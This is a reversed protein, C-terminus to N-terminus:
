LHKFIKKYFFGNIKVLFVWIKSFYREIMLINKKTFVIKPYLHFIQYIANIKAWFMNGEPFDVYKNLIAARPNIKRLFHNLYILDMDNIKDHCQVKSKYYIEPFIFGIEKNKEFDSIIESIIKSNGILNNYIYNKWEDFYDIDDPYISNIHSIYKYKKAKYRFNYLFILLYIKENDILKIEYYYAKSNLVIYQNLFEKNINNNIYIFLDYIYPINNIKNIIEEILYENNLFVFFAIRNEGISSFNESYSIGFIAKSLSNISAYGFKDDPELYSGEGWENWANIFIFQNEKNYHNLTWNVIIKNFIYFQEPSYNEFIEHNITRASNDWEVMTGRFLSFNKFNIRTENFLSSKYLLESYLLTRKNPIRLNEFSNRPPFEYAGDFLNLREFDQTKNKNMCILIFINGIGLEKSKERWISITRALNPIKSPEYLGLVPKNDIRIYRRDIIYKKIDKIYKQPDNQRYEQKILIEQDGGNWKKTWNENAWILLFHFEIHSHKMFNDLPKQLVKKGSFWYYYIGFGYIGHSKALKVQREFVKINKLDYYGLYGYEDGPFRPQHHGEYLPRGRKVNTWETFGKGWFQNNEKTEHFQPLYLAIAKINTKLSSFDINKEYEPSKNDCEIYIGNVNKNIFLICIFVFM